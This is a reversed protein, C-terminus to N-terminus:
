IIMSRASATRSGCFSTKKLTTDKQSIEKLVAEAFQWQRLRGGLKDRLLALLVQDRWQCQIFEGNRLQCSQWPQM